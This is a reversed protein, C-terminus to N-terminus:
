VTNLSVRQFTVLGSLVVDRNRYHIRRFDGILAASLGYTLGRLGRLLHKEVAVSAIPNFSPFSGLSSAHLMEEKTVTHVYLNLKSHLDRLDALAGRAVESELLACSACLDFMDSVSKTQLVIPLDKAALGKGLSEIAARLCCLCGKYAGLAYCLVAQSADSAVEKLYDVGVSGVRHEVGERIRTGGYTFESVVTVLGLFSRHVRRVSAKFRPMAGQDNGVLRNVHAFLIEFDANIDRTM